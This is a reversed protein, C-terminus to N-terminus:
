EHGIGFMFLAPALGTVHTSVPDTRTRWCDATLSFHRVTDDATLPALDEAYGLSRALALSAQNSAAARYQARRAGLGDFILHLLARRSHAGIGQGRRDQFVWVGTRVERTRAFEAARVNQVGVLQGQDFVALTLSWQDPRWTGQDSWLWQLTRRGRRLPTDATHELFPIRPHAHPERAAADALVEYEAPVPPRLELPGSRIRLDALPWYASTM